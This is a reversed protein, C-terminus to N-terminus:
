IDIFGMQGGNFGNNLFIRSMKINKTTIVVKRIKRPCFIIISKAIKRGRKGISM